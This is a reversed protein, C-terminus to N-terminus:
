FPMDPATTVPVDSYVLRAVIFGEPLRSISFARFSSSDDKNDQGTGPSNGSHAALWRNFWLRFVNLDGLMWAALGSEDENSFAYFFYRGWGEIIKALETKVGSPRGARITFENRYQGDCYDLYKHKRVRCGIRVAEMRLVMLDTNREADEEQPPEGILHEGLIRKIDPLFKDSWQKDRKWQTM